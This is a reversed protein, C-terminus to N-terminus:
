WTGRMFQIVLPKGLYEERSHVIGQLDPLHFDPMLDGPRLGQERPLSFGGMCQETFIVRMNDYILPSAVNKNRAKKQTIRIPPLFTM